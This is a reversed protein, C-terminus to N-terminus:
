ERPAQFNAEDLEPCPDALPEPPVLRDLAAWDRTLLATLVAQNVTGVDDPDRQPPPPTM